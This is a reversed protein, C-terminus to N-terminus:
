KRKNKRGYKCHQKQSFGRPRRCNISQKYKRSWKGGIQKKHKKFTKYNNLTKYKKHLKSHIWDVFADIERNKNQINSNEFDEQVIGNKSIYKITPFGIPPDIKTKMKDFVDKNIDVIVVNKYNYNKLVNELKKWEPRVQNCPGCGEMYILMFINKGSEISTNLEQVTRETDSNENIHLFKM